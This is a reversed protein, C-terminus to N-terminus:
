AQRRILVMTVDDTQVAAGAFERVAQLLQATLEALPLAHCRAFVQAVRANGFLEGQANAYEYVGDSILALLDGRALALEGATGARDVLM